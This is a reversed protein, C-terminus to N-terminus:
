ERFEDVIAEIDEPSVRFKKATKAGKQRIKKWQSLKIKQTLADRLFESLSIGAEAVAKKLAKARDPSLSFSIVERQPM